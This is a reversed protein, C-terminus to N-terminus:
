PRTQGNGKVIYKYTTLQEAGVPGRAHLKGTSIGIEAGMGFEGGDAFQTSTNHMVIGSDVKQLFAKTPGAESSIISDTHQSGHKSIHDIAESVDSVSKVSIIADLYETDWDVDKVKKVRPDLSRINRGGRVECGSRILDDLIPPLFSDLINEDILLTEAAGCIGPRRMKANLVIKRAINLNASSHVYVHCIGDLHRIVPIRSEKLVREILGRGGRPVIIDVYQDMKLLEAVAQRDKTPILQVCNAPLKFSKLADRLCEAIVTSSNLSESGCRLISSNGSKLSLGAADATVNPRSEYIIAITGIPVRVRSIKLGNPREWAAIIKGVPDQLRAVDKLGKSMAEVREMNLELRDLLAESIKEKKAHFMDRGNATLIKKSRSHINKAAKELVGNKISTSAISLSLSAQKSAKCINEVDLKINRRRKM